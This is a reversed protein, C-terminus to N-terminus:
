RYVNAVVRYVFNELDLLTFTAIVKGNDAIAVFNLSSFTFEDDLYQRNPWTYGNYWSALVRPSDYFQQFVCIIKNNSNIALTFLSSDGGSQDDVIQFSDTWQQGDWRNSVLEARTGNDRIFVALGKGQNDMVIAPLAAGMPGGDIAAPGSWNGGAWGQGDWRNAYVREVAGGIDNFAIMVDGNIGPSIPPIDEIQVEAGNDVALAGGWNAGAWAAGDWRNAYLRDVVGDSQYVLTVAQGNSNFVVWSEFADNGAGNDIFLAGGWNGATWGQGDWYNAAIRDNTGDSQLFTCVAAGNPGIAIRPLSADNGSGDDIILAGAWNDATWGKGDWYNAYARVSAGLNQDFVVIATGDERFVVIPDMADTGGGADVAINGKWSSGDWFNAYVRDNTGDNESFVAIATGNPAFAVWPQYAGNLAGTDIIEVGRWYAGGGGGGTSTPSPTPTVSPSSTPTVSPSVTPSPTPSTTVTPTPSPEGGTYTALALGGNGAAHGNLTDTFVVGNLTGTVGSNQSCWGYAKGGGDTTKLVVGNEGVAWGNQSDVFAIGRLTVRCTSEQVTWTEGGDDTYIVTGNEGVAWGATESAFCVGYLTSTVGSAQLTWSQGGDGTHIVTGNAGVAWGTSESKFCVGYLNESIGPSLSEWTNGYDQSFQIVGNDGVIWGLSDYMFVDNFVTSAKRGSVKCDSWSSGGDSTVLVTGEDGAAVGRLGDAFCIGRLNKDTGSTVSSWSSGGNETKLIMGNDGASWGLNSSIFCVDNLNEGTGTTQVVWGSSATPAPSASGGGGGGDGGCGVVLAAVLLLVMSLLALARIRKEM